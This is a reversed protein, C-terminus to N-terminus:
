MLPGMRESIGSPTLLGLAWEYEKSVIISLRTGDQFDGGMICGTAAANGPSFYRIQWSGIDVTYASSTGVSALLFAAILFLRMIGGCGVM